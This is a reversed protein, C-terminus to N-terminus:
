EGVVVEWSAVRGSDRGKLKRPFVANGLSHAVVAGGHREERQVVHPGSGAVLRAGRAVLWRAWHRQVENVEARYEDGGHVLVVISEGRRRAAAMERSLPERHEPLCAVGPGEGAVMAPVISVGFCAVGKSVWPRCAEAASSGAGFVGIGAEKLHRMGDLLGAPGADGAHNNALSVADVGRDSLWELRGPSMRFDFAPRGSVPLETPVGELNALFLAAGQKAFGEILEFEGVPVVDGAVRVAVTEREPLTWVRFPPRGSQLQALAVVQPVGGLHHFVLDGSGLEGRPERDEWLAAVHKGFDIMVGREVEAASLPGEVRRLQRRLAEPDGLRIPVGCRRWAHVLVNSCDAGWGADVGSLGDVEVGAVGFLYPMGRTESLARRFGSGEGFRLEAVGAPLWAGEREYEATVRLRGGGGSWKGLPLAFDNSEAVPLRDECVWRGPRNSFDKGLGTEPLLDYARRLPRQLFWRVRGSGEAGRLRLVADPAPRWVGDLDLELGDVGLWAPDVPFEHTRERDTVRCRRGLRSVWAKVAPSAAALDWRAVPGQGARLSDDRRDDLSADIEIEAGRTRAVASLVLAVLRDAEEDGELWPRSVAVSVGCLGPWDMAAAWMRAFRAAAADADMGAFFDLDLSWVVPRRGPKWAELGALDVARWREALPGASRPEVELRGDCQRGAIAEREAPDGAPAVWLVRGFPRPMLPEIWNFAQVRGGARWAEVRAAREDESAVRRLRERLEDSREAASADSHADCLVLVHERDLDLTRSAWAFSDGHNDALFVPLTPGGWATGALLLALAVPKM